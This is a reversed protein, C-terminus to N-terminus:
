IKSSFKLSLLPFKTDYIKQTKTSCKLLTLNTHVIVGYLLDLSFEQIYKSLM